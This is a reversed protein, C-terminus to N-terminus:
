SRTASTAMSTSPSRITAPTPTAVGRSSSIRTSCGCGQTAIRSCFIAQIDMDMRIWFLISDGINFEYPRNDLKRSVPPLWATRLLRGSRGELVQLQFDRALVVETRGDGDLDHIQFPTDNTLLGNNPNPRGVQWLVKGELTIATLCSIHDFADGRVKPINQAILM